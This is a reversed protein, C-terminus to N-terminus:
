LSSVIKRLANNPILGDDDESYEPKIREVFFMDIEGINKAPIKGRPTCIFYDKIYSYTTESINIKGPECATELRSAVNVTDGWVDYAFKHKGIVGAVVSGSHIGIRISWTPKNAKAEEINRAKTYRQFELAALVTDFPHSHNTRPLGGVCMYADGITKIKEIYRQTVIEDFAEFYSSLVNLFEDINEYAVSIKSFGVFDAFLVSVEKFKKPKYVGKKQLANAVELPLINLLLAETKQKEEALLESQRQIQNQQEELIKNANELNETVSQLHENKEALHKEILKLDTIDMQIAVIYNLNQLDDFVPTLSTQIYKEKGMPTIWKSEYVVYEGTICRKIAEATTKNITETFLNSGFTSKFEDISCEHLRKFGENVWTIEGTNSIIIVSNGAQNIATTISYFQESQTKLKKLMRGRQIGVMIRQILEPANIPLGIFDDAGAHFLSQIHQPQSFDAIALIPINSTAPDAKIISLVDAAAKNAFHIDYLIIDPNNSTITSIIRESDLTNSVTFDNDALSFIRQIDELLQTNGCATLVKYPM